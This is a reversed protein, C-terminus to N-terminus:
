NKNVAISGNGMLSNKIVMYGYIITTAFCIFPNLFWAVDPIQRYGKIADWTPKIFTLSFFVYKLVGLEDGRM